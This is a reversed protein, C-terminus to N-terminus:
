KDAHQMGGASTENWGGEYWVGSGNRCARMGLPLAAERQAWGRSMRLKLASWDPIGDVANEGAVSCAGAAVATLMTDELCERHAIAALLGAITADGAGTTGQAQVAYCPVFREKGAWGRVDIAFSRQLAAWGGGQSTTKMYLGHEGLKIGVVPPGLALLEDALGRLLAGNVAPFVDGSTQKWALYENRRLMFWIEEFSPVFLDVEPLVRALLAPWDAQGAETSPEVLAMDLSTALGNRRARRFLSAAMEGGDEYFRRLLPPYGVHLLRAGDFLRDAVDRERFTANAGAYHVIIRDELGPNLLVSYSTHEEDEVIMDGTLAPHQEAILRLAMEGFLDRGIKGALKTRVGLRHLAVGTNFVAGGCTVSLPGADILKGPVFLDRARERSRIAPSVDVCLHGAVVIGGPEDM